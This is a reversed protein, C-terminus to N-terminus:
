TTDRNSAILRLEDLCGVRRPSSQSRLVLVPGHRDAIIDEIARAAHLSHPLETPTCTLPLPLPTHAALFPQPPDPVAEVHTTPASDVAHARTTCASSQPSLVYQCPGRALPLPHTLSRAAGVLPVTRDSPSPAVPARPRPSRCRCAPGV